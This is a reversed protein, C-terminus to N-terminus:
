GSSRAKWWAARFDSFSSVPRNSTRSPLRNVSRSLTESPSEGFRRRYEVSFRGMHTFGWQMAIETVSAEPAACHLTERVKDLRANRLYRMPSLGRCDNFHKFLTRGPVGSAQVIDALRIPAELHGQMYDIARKVDRSAIPRELRRLAVSYNHPHSMLLAAFIFQELMIMTAPAFYISGVRDLDTAVMLIFRALSNGYGATLDMAPAFELPAGLPADLLTELQRVIASKNLCLHIRASGADSRMVYYDHRTPSAIWACNPNCDIRDRGVTAELHGRLPLQVWYDNRAPSARVLVASGYQAYGLYMGPLYIGNLRVDLQREARAPYDVCFDVKQLWAQTEDRDRSRFVSLDDLLPKGRVPM